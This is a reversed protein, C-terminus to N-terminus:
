HAHPCLVNSLAQVFMVGPCGYEERGFSQWVCGDNTSSILLAESDHLRCSQLVQILVQVIM